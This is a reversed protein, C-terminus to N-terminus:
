LSGRPVAVGHINMQIRGSSTALLLSRPQIDVKMDDPRSGDKGSAVRITNRLTKESFTGQAVPSQDAHHDVAEGPDACRDGHLNPVVELM